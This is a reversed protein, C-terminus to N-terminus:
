LWGVHHFSALRCSRFDFMKEHRIEKLVPFPPNPHPRPRLLCFRSCVFGHELRADRYEVGRKFLLLHLLTKKENGRLAPFRCDLRVTDEMCVACRVEALRVGNKLDDSNLAFYHIVAFEEILLGLAPADTGPDDFREYSWVKRRTM